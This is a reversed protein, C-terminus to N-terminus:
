EKKKAEILTSILKDLLPFGVLLLLSIGISIWMYGRSFKPMSKNVLQFIFLLLTGTPIWTQFPRSWDSFLQRWHKWFKWMPSVLEIPPERRDFLESELIKGEKICQSKKDMKSGLAITVYVKDSPCFPDQPKEMLHHLICEAKKLYFNRRWGDNILARSLRIEWVLYVTHLIGLLFVIGFLTRESSEALSELKDIQYFGLLLLTMYAIFVRFEVQRREDLRKAGFEALHVMREFDDKLNSM